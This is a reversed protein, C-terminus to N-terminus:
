VQERTGLGVWLGVDVAEVVPRERSVELGGENMQGQGGMSKWIGGALGRLVAGMLAEAQVGLGKELEPSRERARLGRVILGLARSGRWRWCGDGAGMGRSGEAGM